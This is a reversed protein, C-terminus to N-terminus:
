CSYERIPSLSSTAGLTAALWGEHARFIYVFEYTPPSYAGRKIILNISQFLIHCKLTGRKKRPNEASKGLDQSRM